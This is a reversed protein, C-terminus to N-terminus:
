SHSRHLSKIGNTVQCNHNALSTTLSIRKGQCFDRGSNVGPLTKCDISGSKILIPLGATEGLRRPFESPHCVPFGRMGLHRYGTTLFPLPRNGFDGFDM